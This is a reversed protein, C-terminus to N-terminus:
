KLWNLIEAELDPEEKGFMDTGHGAKRYVVIEKEVGARARLSLTRTEQANGGDDESTAFFLRTGRPFEAVLSETAIGRYNLGPSLLAAQTVERHRALYQLALNAGISAGVLVLEHPLVGKEKLFEAGAEVDLISEQHEDDTFSQYGKPGGSSEGHGRLDIALVRYGREALKPAFESWSARNAPMMHLLLAGKGLGGGERPVLYDAVIAIGDKTRLTVREMTKIAGSSLPPTRSEGSREREEEQTLLFAGIGIALAAFLLLAVKQM